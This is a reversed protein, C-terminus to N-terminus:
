RGEGVPASTRAVLSPLLIAMRDLATDTTIPGPSWRVRVGRRDCFLGADTLGLRLAEAEAEGPLAVMVSGGREAPARPTIVDLGSADAMAFLRECQARNRELLQGPPQACVWEIGPLSAIYPLLSPTGNGFRRADGSFAFRDLDWNLPPTQSFWGRVLPELQPLLGPAVYGFGAGPMGCLWKLSTSAAFDVASADFPVLGAGQTIDVAVLSGMDRGHGLLREIDARRSSTSTIWTVIALAVEDSWAAIFADDSVFHEGPRLPVTELTFGLQPALGVLLFHLSPFCDGAILIKRGLLTDPPLATVFAGFAQTVNEVTFVTDPPVGIMAAFLEAARARQGLGPFWHQDGPGYWDRAAQALVTGVSEAQSPFRGVSHYLLWGEDDPPVTASSQPDTM